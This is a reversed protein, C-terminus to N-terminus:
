RSIKWEPNWLQADVRLMLCVKNQQSVEWATKGDKNLLDLDAGHRLAEGIFDIIPPPCMRAALHLTTDGNEDAVNPDAGQELLRVFRDFDDSKPYSNKKEFRRMMQEHLATRGRHDQTDIDVGGGLMADFYGEPDGLGFGEFLPSRGHSDHPDMGAALLTRVLEARDKSNALRSSFVATQGWKDRINPRAGAELYIRALDATQAGHLPTSGHEDQANVDAGAAVLVRIIETNGANGPLSHLVHQGRVGRANVDVGSDVLVQVVEAGTGRARVERLQQPTKRMYDPLSDSGFSIFAPLLFGVNPDAGADLLARVIRVDWIAHHLPAHGDATLAGPDAGAALLAQVVPLPTHNPGDGMLGSQAAAALHLPTASAAYNRRPDESEGETTSTPDAGAELLMRVAAEDSRSSAGHLPRSVARLGCQENPSAGASLLLRLAQGRARPTMCRGTSSWASLCANGRAPVGNSLLHQMHRTNCEDAAKALAWRQHEQQRSNMESYHTQAATTAPLSLALCAAIAATSRKTMM